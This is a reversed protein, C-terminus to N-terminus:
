PLNWQQANYEARRMSVFDYANRMDKQAIM